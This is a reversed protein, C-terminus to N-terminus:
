PIENKSRKRNIFANNVVFLQNKKKKMNESNKKRIQFFREFNFTLLLLSAIYEKSFSISEKKKQTQFEFEEILFDVLKYKFKENEEKYRFYDLCKQVTLNLHKIVEKQKNNINEKMIEEIISKNSKISTDESSENSLIVYLPQRLYEFIFDADLKENILKPKIIEIPRIKFEKFSNTAKRYSSSLKTLIKLMMKDRDDKRINKKKSLNEESEQKIMVQHKFDEIKKNAKDEPDKLYDVLKKCIGFEGMKILENKDEFIKPCLNVFFHGFENVIAEFSLYPYKEECNINIRTNNKYQQQYINYNFAELNILPKIYYRANDTQSLDEEYEKSSHINDFIEKCIKDEKDQNIMILLGRNLDTFHDKGDIKPISLIQNEQIVNKNNVEFSNNNQSDNENIEESMSDNKASITDNNIKQKNIYTENIENRNEVENFNSPKITDDCLNGVDEMEVEGTQGGKPLMYNINGIDMEYPDYKQAENYINNQNNYIENLCDELSNMMEKDKM